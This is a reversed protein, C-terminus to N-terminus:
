LFPPSNIADRQNVQTGSVAAKTHSCVNQGSLLSLNVGDLGKTARPFAHDMVVHFAGVVHFVKVHTVDGDPSAKKSLRGGPKTKEASM